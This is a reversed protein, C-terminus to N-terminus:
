SGRIPRIVPENCLVACADRSTLLRSNTVKCIWTDTHMRVDAEGRKKKKKVNATIVSFDATLSLLCSSEARVTVWLGGDGCPVHLQVVM